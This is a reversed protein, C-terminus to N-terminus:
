DFLALLKEPSYRALGPGNEQILDAALRRKQEQLDLVKQEVTGATVLRTVMVPMKRGIRHARDVAQKEVQPNWWPDCLYVYDAATLNIGTGGAKLSVFFVVPSESRQFRDILEERKTTQGDLYLTDLHEKEAASRLRKLGSVFQSFVLARHGGAAVEVLRALLEAEKVSPVDLGVPDADEPYLAAQRLRLLGTFVAAGIEAQVGGAIAARVRGQHFLRLEEYFRAQKPSMECLLVTEVRPPLEPAVAEKTRRLVFPEVRRSLRSLRRASEDTLNVNRKPYRNSFDRLSGLLGPHLFDMISFLDTSVNEVPTGTLCLKVDASLEKVRKTTRAYPNKIFQAEDLVILNWRIRCFLQHDRMVTAYSTITLDAATLAETNRLRKPGHHVLTGLDPAFRAAERRWNELTSVPAVVLFKGPLLSSPDGGPHALDTGAPTQRLHLMLALAQVTKGLGMDDALCGSLRHRALRILWRYGDAQYPRLKAQLGVPPPAAEPSQLLETALARLAALDPAIEDALESLDVLSTLDGRPFRSEPAESVLERLRELRRVDEPDLYLITSGQLLADKRGIDELSRIDVPTGDALKVLPGFWDIGSAVHVALPGPRRIRLRHGEEAELYVPFGGEALAIGADLTDNIERGLSLWWSWTQTGAAHYPPTGFVGNALRVAKEAEGGPIWHLRYERGEYGDESPDVHAELIATVQRGWASLIFVPKRESPLIRISRPYRLSLYDPYGSALLRLEALDKLTLRGSDILYPTILSFPWRHDGLLVIGTDFAMVGRGMGHDWGGFTDQPIAYRRGGCDVSLALRFEVQPKRSAGAGTPFVELDIRHPTLITVPFNHSGGPSDLSGLFVPAGAESLEEGFAILPAEGGLVLLREAVPAVAAVVGDLGADLDSDENLPPEGPRLREVRGYRGDRRCYQRGLSVMPRLEQTNHILFVARWPHRVSLDSPSEDSAGNRRTMRIGRLAGEVDVVYETAVEDGLLGRLPGELDGGEGEEALLALVTAVLHKCGTGVPCTCRGSTPDATDLFVTYPTSARGRVLSVAASGDRRIHEVRGDQFYRTGRDISPASFLAV